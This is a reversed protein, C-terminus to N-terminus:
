LGRLKNYTNYMWGNTYRGPRYDIPNQLLSGHLTIGAGYGPDNVMPIGAPGLVQEGVWLDEGVPDPNIDARNIIELARRSVWYGEGGGMFGYKYRQGPTREVGASTHIFGYYDHKEFGSNMLRTPSVYTDPYCKFVFDYGRDLGWTYLEKSRQILSQYNEEANLIVVDSPVKSVDAISYKKDSGPYCSFGQGHFFKYDVGEPVHKLWTGRVSENDGNIECLWCSVIAILARM